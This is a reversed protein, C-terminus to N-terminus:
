SQVADKDVANENLMEVMIQMTLNESYKELAYLRANKGMEIATSQHSILYFLADAFAQPVESQVILGTKNNLVVEPLGGVNSVICARECAAAEVVSVGFSEIRSSVVFLDIENIYSKVQAHPVAGIIRTITSLGLSEVLEKLQATMAGDGVILLRLKSAADNNEYSLKDKLLKFAQILVDLGYKEEMRKVVGITIEQNTFVEREPTFQSLDVGFPTISIDAVNPAIKRVQKAMAHSTSALHTASKLNAKILRKHFVSKYPFEYVDSGWISLVYRPLRALNALTGYGSAYHVNVIDPNLKAILRHLFFANLVYGKGGKFPLLHLVVKEHIPERIKHQTILHVEFGLNVLGNVWKVTHVVSAPAIFALKKIQSSM